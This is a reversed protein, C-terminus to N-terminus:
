PSGRSMSRYSIMAAGSETSSFQEMYSFRGASVRARYLSRHISNPVQNWLTLAARLM